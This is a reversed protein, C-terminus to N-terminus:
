DNEQLFSPPCGTLRFPLGSRSGDHMGARGEIFLFLTGAQFASRFPTRFEWGVVAVLRAVGCGQM